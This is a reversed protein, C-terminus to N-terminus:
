HYTLWTLYYDESCMGEQTAKIPGVSGFGGMKKPAAAAKGGGIQGFGLRGMGMGLRELESNTRERSQASGYSGRGPSVPTPSAISPLDAVKTTTKTTTTGEADPDYGLKEIREAEEKAKREAADFDIVDGTVKKAGLKTKKAGLVNAKRPGAGTTTGKRLAASSTIRSAAPALAGGEVNVLPSPTRAIGNGNGNSGANLFPSPTRGVVPPTATRSAPPTPRKISPKDWSSFFDDDPDGTPTSTGDTSVNSMVDTIVVETPYRHGTLIALFHSGSVMSLLM